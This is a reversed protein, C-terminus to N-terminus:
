GLIWFALGVSLALSLLVAIAQLTIQAGRSRVPLGRATREIGGGELDYLWAVVLALPFGAALGAVVLAYTRDQDLPLGPLLVETIQLLLFAVVLYGIGAGGVRRRRVERVFEQLAVPFASPAARGLPDAHRLARGAGLGELEDAVRGAAPRQAPRKALCRAILGSLESPVGPAVEHLPRPTGSLHAHITGATTTTEYPGAGTLLHYALVGLSYIDAPPGVAEGVLQEPSSFGVHGLTQGVRTIRTVAESGTELIGAIGFDTLVARGTGENWMVNGPRVDRHVVGTEHAVALARAVQALISLATEHDLPGAAALVDDLTRGSVYEMVLFPTDDPLKGTRYVAAAGPHLIRAAARAEREFRARVQPDSALSAHPVKIAVLRRLDVERALHVTGMAGKGLTRLYEFEPALEASLEATTSV